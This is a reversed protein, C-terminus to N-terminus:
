DAFEGSSVWEMAHLPLTGGAKLAASYLWFARQHAETSPEEMLLDAISVALDPSFHGADRCLSTVQTEDLTLFEDLSVGLAEKIGTSIVENIEVDPNERKNFLVLALVQALQNVQRMVYDRTFM